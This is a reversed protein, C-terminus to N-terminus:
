QIQVNQSIASMQGQIAEQAVVRLRYAGPPAEVSM